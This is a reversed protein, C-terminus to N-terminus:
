PNGAICITTNGTNFIREPDQVGMGELVSKYGSFTWKKGASLRM